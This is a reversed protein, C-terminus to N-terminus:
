RLLGRVREIQDIAKGCSESADSLMASIRAATEHRNDESEEVSKAAFCDTQYDLVTVLRDLLLSAKGFVKEPPMANDTKM